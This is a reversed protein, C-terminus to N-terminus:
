GADPLLRVVLLDKRCGLRQQSAAVLGTNAPAALSRQRQTKWRAASGAVACKSGHWKVVNAYAETPRVRWVFLRRPTRVSDARWREPGPTGTRASVLQRDQRRNRGVRFRCIVDYGSITGVRNGAITLVSRWSPFCFSRERRRRQARGRGHRRDSYRCCRCREFYGCGGRWWDYRRRFYWQDSGSTGTFIAMVAESGQQGRCEASRSQPL